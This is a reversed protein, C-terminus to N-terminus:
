SGAALPGTVKLKQNWSTQTKAEALPLEQVAFQVFYM